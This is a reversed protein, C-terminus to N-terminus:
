RHPACYGVFYELFASVPSQASHAARRFQLARPRSILPNIVKGSFIAPGQWCAAEGNV